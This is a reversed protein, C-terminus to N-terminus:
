RILDQIKALDWGLGKGTEMGHEDILGQLMSIAEDNKSQWFMPAWPWMAEVRSKMKTIVDAYESQTRNSSRARVLDCFSRFNYKCHINCATNIPMIGRADQPSVGSNIMSVYHAKVDAVALAFRWRKSEDDDHPNVVPMESADTVRQSLMAYSGTRTRTIQQACARSIGEVLFHVDLFEWSSPITRAMYALEDMIEQEAMEEIEEAANALRTKKTLVLLKAAALAPDDFGQGTYSVLHVKM